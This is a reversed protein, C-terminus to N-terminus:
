VVFSALTKSWARDSQRVGEIICQLCACPIKSRSPSMNLDILQYPHLSISIGLSLISRHIDTPPSQHSTILQGRLYSPHTTSSLPHLPIRPLSKICHATAVASISILTADLIQSRSALFHAPQHDLSTPFLPLLIPFLLITTTNLNQLELRNRHSNCQRSYFLLHLLVNIM